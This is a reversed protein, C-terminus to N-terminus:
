AITIHNTNGPIVYILLTFSCTCKCLALPLENDFCYLLLLCYLVIVPSIVVVEM